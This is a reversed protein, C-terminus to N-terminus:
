LLLKVSVLILIFASIMLFFYIYYSYYMKPSWPKFAMEGKVIKSANEGLQIFPKIERLNRIFGVIPPEDTAWFSSLAFNRNYQTDTISLVFEKLTQYIEINKIRNIDIPTIKLGEHVTLGQKERDLSIYYSNIFALFTLLLYVSFGFALIIIVVYGYLSYAWFTLLATLGFLFLSKIYLNKNIVPLFKLKLDM